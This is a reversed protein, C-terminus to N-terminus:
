FTLQIQFFISYLVLEEIDNKMHIFKSLLQNEEWPCEYKKLYKKLTMKIHILKSLKQNEEWPCEYRKLYKKLTM